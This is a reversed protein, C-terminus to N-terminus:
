FAVAQLLRADDVPQGALSQKYSNSKKNKGRGTKVPSRRRGLKGRGERRKKRRRGSRRSRPGGRSPLVSGM